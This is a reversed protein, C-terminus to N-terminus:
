KLSNHAPMEMSMGIMAKSAQNSNGLPSLNKGTLSAPESANAPSSLVTRQRTAASEVEATSNIHVVAM